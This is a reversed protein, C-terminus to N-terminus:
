RDGVLRLDVRKVDAGAVGLQIRDHDDTKARAVLTEMERVSIARNLFVGFLQLRRGAFRHSIASPLEHLTEDRQIDLALPNDATSQWAPHYWYVRRGEDVAFVMLHQRHAINAYAFALGSDAHVESVVPRITETKGKTVEYVLLQSGPATFAGRSQSDQQSRRVGLALLAIVCAASAALAPWRRIARVEAHTSSIGLGRALRDRPLIAARPDVAALLLHREYHVRCDPCGVLHQRMAHEGAPEARGLFHRDILRRQRRHLAPPRTVFAAIM